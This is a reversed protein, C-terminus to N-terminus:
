QCKYEIVHDSEEIVSDYPNGSQAQDVRLDLYWQVFYTGVTCSTLALVGKSGKGNISYGRAQCSTVPNNRDPYCSGLDAQVANYAANYNAAWGTTADTPCPGTDYNIVAGNQCTAYEYSFGQTGGSDYDWRRKTEAFTGNNVPPQAVPPPPAPPPPTVAGSWPLATGGTYPQNVVAVAPASRTLPPTPPPQAATPMPAPPAPAPAIERSVFVAAGDPIGSPIDVLRGAVVAGTADRALTGAKIGIRRGPAGALRMLDRPAVANGAPLYAYASGNSVFAALGTIKQFGVPLQLAGDALPGTFSPHTDAYRGVAGAYVSVADQMAAAQSAVRDSEMHTRYNIGFTLAVLLLLAVVIKLWM